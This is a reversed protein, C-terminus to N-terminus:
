VALGPPTCCSVPVKLPWCPSTLRYRAIAVNFVADTIDQYRGSANVPTYQRLNFALPGVLESAIKFPHQVRMEFDIIYLISREAKSVAAQLEDM